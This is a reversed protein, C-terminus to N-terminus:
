GRMPARFARGFVAPRLGRLLTDDVPHLVGQSVAPLREVARADAAIRPEVALEEDRHRRGPDVAPRNAGDPARLVRVDPIVRGRGGRRFGAETRAQPAPGFGRRARRGPEAGRRDDAARQPEDVFAKHIPRGHIQEGFAEADTRTMEPSQETLVHARRRQSHGLRPAQMERLPQEVLRAQWDRVNRERGSEAAHAAEIGRKSLRVPARRAFQAPVTTFV